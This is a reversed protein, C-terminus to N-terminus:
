GPLFNGSEKKGDSQLTKKEAILKDVDHIDWAIKRGENEFRVENFAEKLEKHEKKLTELEQRLREEDSESNGVFKGAWQYGTKRSIGAHECITTVDADTSLGKKRLLQRARIMIAVEESIVDDPMHVEM